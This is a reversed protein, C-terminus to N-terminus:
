FYLCMSILQLRPNEALTNKWERKTEVDFVNRVIDWNENVNHEVGLWTLTEKTWRSGSLLRVTNVRAEEAATREAAKEKLRQRDRLEM